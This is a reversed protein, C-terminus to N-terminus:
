HALMELSATSDEQFNALKITLLCSWGKSTDHNWKLSKLFSYWCNQSKLRNSVWLFDLDTDLYSFIIQWQHLPDRVSLSLGCVLRYQAIIPNLTAFVTYMYRFTYRIRVRQTFNSCWWGYWDNIPSCSWLVIIMIPM